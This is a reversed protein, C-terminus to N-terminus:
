TTEAQESRMRKRLESNGVAVADTVVGIEETVNV